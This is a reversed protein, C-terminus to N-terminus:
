KRTLEQHSQAQKEEAEYQVHLRKQEDHSLEAYMYKDFADQNNAGKGVCFWDPAKCPAGPRIIESAVREATMLAGEIWGQEWAYAEGCVYLPLPRPITADPDLARVVLRHREDECLPRFMVNKVKPVDVFPEWTHWGGYESWDRFVGGIAMPVDYDHLEALQARVKEEMRHRVEYGDTKRDDIEKLTTKFTERFKDLDERPLGDPPDWSPLDKMKGPGWLSYPRNGILDLRLGLTKDESDRDRYVREHVNFTRWFAEYHSDNYVMVLSFRSQKDVWKNEALWTPGFYHIQRMPLDTFLRGSEAGPIHTHQWWPEEYALVIKALRHPRSCHILQDWCKGADGEVEGTDDFLRIRSLASPPMALVVDSAPVRAKGEFELEFAGASKWHVAKLAHDRAITVNRRPLEDELHKVIQSLGKPVTQLRQHPSFDTLLWKFAEPANWNSIVSLFGFGDHVLLFAESSLFHKLVNWFGINRLPIGAFEYDHNIFTMWSDASLVEHDTLRQRFKRLFELRPKLKEGDQGEARNAYDAIMKKLMEFIAYELLDAPDKGREEPRVRYPIEGRHFSEKSLKRGRLHYLSQLQFPGRWAQSESVRDVGPIDLHKCLALLLKHQQPFRMAGLEARLKAPLDASGKQFVGFETTDIRGGVRGSAEYITIDLKHDTDLERLRLAAYLGAIGGGVIAVNKEPM